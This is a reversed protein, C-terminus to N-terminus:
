GLAVTSRKTKGEQKRRKKVPPTRAIEEEQEMVEIVEVSPHKNRVQQALFRIGWEECVRHGVCVVKIGKERAAQLGPERAQGTLYLINSGDAPSPIWNNSHAEHLVRAVEEPHFANMIALVRIDDPNSGPDLHQPQETILREAATALPSLDVGYVADWSGFERKINELLIALSESGSSLTGLIGIRREPDGKYGKLCVSSATIMGLRSALITNFGVTLTEDFATHSALATTGYPMRRRDLNFPRHLFLLTSKPNTTPSQLLDYVGPTPTISLIM